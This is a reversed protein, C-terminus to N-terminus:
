PHPEAVVVHVSGHHELHRTMTRSGGNTLHHATPVVVAWVDNDRRVEDLLAHFAAPATDSHEVYVTGLVFGETIAFAALSVKAAAIEDPSMLVHARIYGLILPRTGDSM